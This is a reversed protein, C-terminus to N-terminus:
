PWSWRSPNSLSNCGDLKEKAKVTDRRGVSNAARKQGSTFEEDYTIRWRHGIEHHFDLQRQEGGKTLSNALQAFGNALRIALKRQNAREVFATYDLGTMKEKTGGPAALKKAADYANKSDTVVAAPICKILEDRDRPHGVEDHGLFEALALRVASIEDEIDCLARMEAAGPSRCVGAIKGSKWHMISADAEDGDLMSKPVAAIVQGATSTGDRRSAHAADVWGVM